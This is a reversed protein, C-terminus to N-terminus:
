RSCSKIFIKINLYAFFLCSYEPIRLKKSIETMVLNRIQKNKCHINEIESASVVIRQRVHPTPHLIGGEGAAQCQEVPEGDQICPLLLHDFEELLMPMAEGAVPSEVSAVADLPRDSNRRKREPATVIRQLISRWSRRIERHGM